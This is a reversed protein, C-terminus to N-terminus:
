VYTFWSYTNTHVDCVNGGGGGGGGFFFDKTCGISHLIEAQVLTSIPREISPIPLATLTVVYQSLAIM